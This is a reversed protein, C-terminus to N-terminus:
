IGLLHLFRARIGNYWFYLMINLNRESNKNYFTESSLMCVNMCVHM